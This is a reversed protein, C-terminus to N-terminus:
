REYPAASRPPVETPDVRGPAYQRQMTKADRMRAFQSDLHNLRDFLASPMKWYDIYKAFTTKLTEFSSRVLREETASLGSGTIQYAQFVGAPLWVILAVLPNVYQVHNPPSNRIISLANNATDLYLRWPRQQQPTTRATMLSMLETDKAMPADEGPELFLTRHHMMFRAFQTMLHIMYVGNDRQRSSGGLPNNDFSLYEGHYQLKKQLALCYCHLANSHVNITWTIDAKSTDQEFRPMPRMADRDQMASPGPMFFASHMFSNVCIYWAKYSQNGSLSLAKWRVMPDIELFASPYPQNNFWYEDEVPLLTDNRHWDIDTPMRRCTSGFVDLEWVSWWARRGEEKDAWVRPDVDIQAAPEKGRFPRDLKHLGHGCAIRVMTRSTEPTVSTTGRILGYLTTLILAQLVVLPPTQSGCDAISKEVYYTALIWYDDPSSQKIGAMAPDLGATAEVWFRASFAFMAAVLALLHNNNRIALLKKEFTPQKFLVFAGFNDFYLDIMTQCEIPNLNLSRAIRTILTQNNPRSLPIPNTPMASTAAAATEYVNNRDPIITTGMGFQSWDLSPDYMWSFDLDNPAPNVMGHVMQNPYTVHHQAHQPYSQILQPHHQLASSPSPQQPLRQHSYAAPPDDPESDDRRVRKKREQNAGKKPGPKQSETPYACDLSLRTCLSCAPLQRSCKVKRKRCIFCSLPALSAEDLPSGTFGFISEDVSDVVTTMSPRPRVPNSLVDSCHCGYRGPWVGAFRRWWPGPSQVLTSLGPPSVLISRAFTPNPHPSSEFLAHSPAPLHVPPIFIVLPLHPFSPSRSTNSLTLVNIIARGNAFFTPDLSM